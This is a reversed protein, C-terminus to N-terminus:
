APAEPDRQQRDDRDQRQARGPQEHPPAPRAGVQEQGFGAALLQRHADGAAAPVRGQGFGRDDGGSPNRPSRPTMQEVLPPWYPQRTDLGLGGRRGAGGGPRTITSLGAPMVDCSTTARARRIMPVRLTPCAPVSSGIAVPTSTSPM